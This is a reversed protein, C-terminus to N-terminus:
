KLLFISCFCQIILKTSLYPFKKKRKLYLFVMNKQKRYKTLSGDFFALIGIKADFLIRAYGLIDEEQMHFCHDSIEKVIDSVNVNNKTNPDDKLCDHLNQLQIELTEM